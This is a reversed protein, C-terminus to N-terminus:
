PQVYGRRGLHKMLRRLGHDGIHEGWMECMHLVEERSVREERCGCQDNHALVAKIEALLEESITPRPPSRREEILTKATIQKNNM